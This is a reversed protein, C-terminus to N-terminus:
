STSLKEGRSGPQSDLRLYLLAVVPHHFSGRNTSLPRSVSALNVYRVIKAGDAVEVFLKLFAAQEDPTMSDGM